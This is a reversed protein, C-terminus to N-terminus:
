PRPGETKAYAQRLAAGGSAVPKRDHVRAAVNRNVGAACRALNRRTVSTLSTDRKRIAQDLFKGDRRRRASPRSPCM